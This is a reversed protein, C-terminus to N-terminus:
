LFQETRESRCGGSFLPLVLRNTTEYARLDKIEDASATFAISTLVLVLALVFSLYKKM